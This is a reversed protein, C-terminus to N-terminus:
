MSDRGNVIILLFRLVGAPPSIWPVLRAFSKVLSVTPQCSEILKASNGIGNAHTAVSMTSLVSYSKKLPLRAVAMRALIAM